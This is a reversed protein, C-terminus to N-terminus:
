TNQQIRTFLPHCNSASPCHARLTTTSLSQAPRIGLDVKEPCNFGLRPVRAPAPHWKTSMEKVFDYAQAGKFHFLINSFM